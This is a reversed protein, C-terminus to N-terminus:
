IRPGSDAVQWLPRIETITRRRHRTAATRAVPLAWCSTM